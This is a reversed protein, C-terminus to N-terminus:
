GNASGNIDPGGQNWNSLQSSVNIGVQAVARSVAADFATPNASAAASNAANDQATTTLPSAINAVGPSQARIGAIANNFISLQADSATKKSPADMKDNQTIQAMASVYSNYATQAQGNSAILAQNAQGAQATAAASDAAYKQTASSINSQHLATANNMGTVGFQTNASQNALSFQNTTNANTSAANHYTAADATAVPISNKMVSDLIGSQQISSNGTFGRSAATQAGATAWQQFYPNNPNTMSAMQGQVTQQSTVGLQAPTGLQSAAYPAPVTSSSPAAQASAIIGTSPTNPDTSAAASAATTGDANLQAQTTSAM